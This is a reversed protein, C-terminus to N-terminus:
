KQRAYYARTLALLDREKPARALGKLVGERDQESREQGLKFKAEVREIPMEYAVIGARMGKLQSAPLQDYDWAGGGGYKGENRMVLSRLGAAVAADDDIRRPSGTVHVVAFNWTPVANKTQYWNPSIYQHPGHFVITAQSKLAENQPNAKAMHWWIRGWGEPARELITPVNTIQVAPQGTVVMAFSFEEMFDLLFARDKESQREPIYITGQQPAKGPMAAMTMGFLFDRRDGM